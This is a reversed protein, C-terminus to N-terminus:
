ASARPRLTPAASTDCTVAQRRPQDPRDPLYRHVVAWKSVGLSLAVAQPPPPRLLSPRLPPPDVRIRGGVRSEAYRYGGANRHAATNM